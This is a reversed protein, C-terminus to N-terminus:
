SKQRGGAEGVRQGGRLAGSWVRNDQAPDTFDDGEGAGGVPSLSLSLSLSLSNKAALSVFAGALASCLHACAFCLLGLKPSVIMLYIYKLVSISKIYTNKPSVFM